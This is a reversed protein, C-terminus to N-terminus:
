HQESLWALVVDLDASGMVGQYKARVAGGADVIFVWPMSSAGWPAEGFGWAAAPATLTPNALSGDLVATDEIVSYRFPELHIFPVSPWRDQLYRALVVAKGCAPSVRFKPSDIVLVFPRGAALLDTTSWQSLRLDPQADTSVARAVGGVDTLTPTRVAPAPAGIRPTAGPDLVKVTVHGRLEGTPTTARVELTWDGATALPLGVVYSIRAIGPPRVASAAQPPGVTTGSPDRAQVTVATAPEDIPGAANALTLIVLSAPDAWVSSSVVDARFGATASAAASPGPTSPPQSPSMTGAPEMPTAAAIARVTTVIASAETGFPFDARLRGNVDVLFVDATHSMSYAGPAGSEVRAFRVGWADATSRTQAADGRVMTIGHPLFAAYEQLWAFSDREPDITVFIARTGDGVQGLVEGLTGITAPCVDPCHTYGFFVLVQTGRLSALTVPRQAADLLNLTPAPRSAPLLFSSPATTAPPLTASPVPGGLGIMVGVAGIVGALIAFTAIAAAVPGLGGGGAEPASGIAPEDVPM